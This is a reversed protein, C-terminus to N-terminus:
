IAMTANEQTQVGELLEGVAPIVASVLKRGVSVVVRVTRNERRACVRDLVLPGIGGVALLRACVPKYAAHM